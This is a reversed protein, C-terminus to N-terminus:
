QWQLRWRRRKGVVRTATVMARKTAAATWEGAIRTAMAMAKNGKGEKNGAVRMAMAMARRGKGKREEDGAHRMTTAIAIAM